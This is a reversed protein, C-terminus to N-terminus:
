KRGASMTLWIRLKPRGAGMSMWITPRSDRRGIAHEGVAQQVRGADNGAGDVQADLLGEVLGFQVNVHIAGFRLLDAIVAARHRACCRSIESLPLKWVM